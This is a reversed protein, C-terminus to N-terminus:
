LAVRRAVDLFHALGPTEQGPVKAQDDFIRVKIAQESYPLSGFALAEDREYPGGQVALTAKSVGSLSDYYEEDAWCLFRKARVHLRIPEIVAEGFAPSLFAAALTEHPADEEDALLHGIDHLLAAVILTDDGGNREALTACQLAHELQSVAEGSYEEAGRTAYIRAIEDLLQASAERM